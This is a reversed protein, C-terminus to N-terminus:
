WIGSKTFEAKKGKITYSGDVAVGERGMFRFAAVIDDLMRMNDSGGSTIVSRRVTKGSLRELLEIIPEGTRLEGLSQIPKLVYGNVWEIYDSSRNSVNETEHPSPPVYQSLEEREPDILDEDEEDPIDYLTSLQANASAAHSPHTFPIHSPAPRISGGIDYPHRISEHDSSNYGNIRSSMSESRSLRMTPAPRHGYTLSFPRTDRITELRATDNKSELLTYPPRPNMRRAVDLSVTPVTSSSLVPAAFQM